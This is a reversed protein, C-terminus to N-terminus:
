FTIFSAIITIVGQPRAEEWMRSQEYSPLIYKIRVGKYSMEYPDPQIVVTSFKFYHMIHGEEPFIVVVSVRSM